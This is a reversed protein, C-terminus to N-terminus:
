VLRLEIFRRDFNWFFFVRDFQTQYCHEMAPQTLDVTSPVRFENAVILLWVESCKTTYSDLKREKGEITGQIDEQTIAPIFGISPCYWHHKRGGPHCYIRIFAVERPFSAYTELSPKLEAYDGPEVSAQEVLQAVTEAIAATDQKRIEVGPNFLIQVHLSQGGAQMYLDRAQGVIRQMLSDQAQLSGGHSPGPQFVETHEIGVLRDRTHVIFDPKETAEIEGEPFFPCVEKFRQLHVLERGKKM